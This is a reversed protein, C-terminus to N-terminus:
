KDHRLTNSIQELKSRMTRSFPNSSKFLFYTYDLCIQIFNLIFIKRANKMFCNKKHMKLVKKKESINKKCFDINEHKNLQHGTNISMKRMILSIFFNFFSTVKYQETNQIKIRPM